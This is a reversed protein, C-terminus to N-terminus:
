NSKEKIESIKCFKVVGSPSVSVPTCKLEQLARISRVRKPVFPNHEERNGRNAEFHLAFNLDNLSLKFLYYIKWEIGDYLKVLDNIRLRAILPNGNVSKKSKWWNPDAKALQYAEYTSIINGEWVGNPNQWIDYCYNSGSAYAKYPAGHRDLIPIVSNKEEIRVKHVPPTMKQGAAVVAVSFEKESKIGQTVEQFLHRLKLDRIKKLDAEKRFSSLPKRTVTTSAGQSNIGQPLGYATENLMQGQYGHDPKHSVIISRISKAADDRFGEWPMPTGTMLRHNQADRNQTAERAIRQLMPRTTCAVVVADIAHHRHDDRNKKKAESVELNHGYLISDLGWEWRLAATMKGTVVTIKSEAEGPYLAALYERMLKSAYQTDTLQRALFDGRKEFQEMADAQFRKQKNKPLEVIRESIDEWRFGDPSHGFAEFPSKNGKIRNARRTSLVKNAYSDDLSRSFPLLHEIEIDDSFLNDLSIRQGSFVCERRTCPLEYFLRLKQRNEYSNPFGLKELERRREENKDQNTKQDRELDKKAQGSLPLDRSLEIVVDTPSGFRKILDNVVRRLQNLAVHVTPNAVKGYRAEPIDSTKGSGKAVRHELIEGYYPLQDHIEGTEHPLFGARKVAKDFTIGDMELHPIIRDLAKKSLKSYKNVFNLNSIELAAEPSLGWKEELRLLLDREKETNALLLFVEDQEALSLDFWDEGWLKKQMLVAATEDGILYERSKSELNFVADKEITLLEKIQKFTVQAKKNTPRKLRERLLAKQDSSLDVTSQGPLAYSLNNVEQLIRALQASPLFAHSRTEEPILSCRGIKGPQLPHQHALTGLLQQKADNNLLDPHYQRQFEWIEEFENLILERTPYYDYQLKAGDGSSRVRAKPQPIRSGKVATANYKQAEFRAKGFLQGLTKVGQEELMARTNNTAAKVKGNDSDQKDTKRNSKFGRRQHLHFIARGIQYATLPALLAQYRLIWPDEQELAKNDTKSDPLLNLATLQKLLRDRRHNFRDRNRRAGRPVRRSAANSEKSQPDRADSFIRVGSALISYPRCVDNEGKELRVAAWGISNSGCDVGLRWSM